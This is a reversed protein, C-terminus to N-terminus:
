ASLCPHFVLCRLQVDEHRTYLILLGRLFTLMDNPATLSNERLEAYFLQWKNEFRQHLQHRRDLSPASKQQWVSAPYGEFAGRVAQGAFM